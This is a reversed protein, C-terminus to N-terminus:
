VRNQFYTSQLYLLALLLALAVAFAFRTTSTWWSSPNNEHILPLQQEDEDDSEFPVNPPGYLSALLPNPAAMSQKASQLPVLESDSDLVGQNGFSLSPSRATSKGPRQYLGFHQDNQWYHM